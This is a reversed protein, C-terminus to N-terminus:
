HLATRDQAANPRKYPWLINKNIGCKLDKFTLFVNRITKEEAGDYSSKLLYRVIGVSGGKGKGVKDLGRVCDETLM